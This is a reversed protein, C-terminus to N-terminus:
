AVIGRSAFWGISASSLLTTARTERATTAMAEMSLLKMSEMNEKAHGSEQVINFKRFSKNKKCFRAGDQIPPGEAIEGTKPGSERVTV